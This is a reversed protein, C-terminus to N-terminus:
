FLSLNLQGFRIEYDLGLQKLFALDSKNRREFDKIEKTILAKNLNTLDIIGDEFESSFPEALVVEEEGISLEELSVLNEVLDESINQAPGRTSKTVEKLAVYPAIKTFVHM